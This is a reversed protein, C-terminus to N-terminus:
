HRVEVVRKRGFEDRLGRRGLPFVRPEQDKVPVAAGRCMGRDAVKQPVQDRPIQEDHVVRLHEGRAEQAPPHGAPASDFAQQKGAQVLLSPLRQHMGALLQTGSPADDELPAAARNLALHELTPEEPPSDDPEHGLGAERKGLADVGDAV